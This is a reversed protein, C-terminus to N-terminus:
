TGCFTARVQEHPQPPEAYSSFEPRDDFPLALAQLLREFPGFDGLSAAQIMAEVQHNRPIYAPNSARMLRRRRLSTQPELTTRNRWLTLWLDCAAPDVFLSRVSEDGESELEGLRRFFLTFDVQNETMAAFLRNTLEVDEDRATFLGLKRRLGTHYSENFRPTFTSLAAQAQTLAAEEDESLLPLIAEALRTMNWLAIRPQNAFAYRGNRDISSFVADPDYTDMFACPGYDLTEGSISVNDTNMVGHIFGVLLWKAVLKAQAAIVQELLLRYPQEGIAAGPYHRAIVHDALLRLAENDGRAAFYQFTGVRIHSAAVRALIAGPLITERDVPEGSAVAALARTSPIGLAAMAECLVYERLVPGLAARGDGGRSFPTRGAGKLQIDRREGIADVLEGLLIARGDGLQPVFGGFQHGAYALAIPESGEAVSMGALVDVGAASELWEPDLGLNIALGRNLRILKPSGVPTADVRAFFREPLTAYSNTFAFGQPM